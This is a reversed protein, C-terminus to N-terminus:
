SDHNHDVGGRTPTPEMVIEDLVEDSFLFIGSSIIEKVSESEDNTM